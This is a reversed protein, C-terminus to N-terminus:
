GLIRAAAWYILWFFGQIGLMMGFMSYIMGGNLLRFPSAPQAFPQAQYKEMLEKAAKIGSQLQKKSAPRTTFVEQLMTGFTRWAFFTVILALLIWDPSISPLHMLGITVLGVLAMLNTGCRPHARPMKEVYEIELPLGRELAHVTQHEAAHIGAMPIARLALLFLLSHLVFAGSNLLGSGDLTMGIQQSLAAAGWSPDLMWLILTLVVTAAAYCGALTLGSLFLGIPPAGGSLTGNSLWVGLPTAMGGVLPPRVNQGMAALIDARSVVGRYLGNADLVPLANLDYRDFTSLANQLSFVSPIHPVDTRMVDRATLQQWTKTSLEANKAEAEDDDGTLDLTGYNGPIGNPAGNSAGNSAGNPAGHGDAHGNTHFGNLPAFGNGLTSVPAKAIAESTARALDRADILGIVRAQRESPDGEGFTLRDLVPLVGHPASRLNEAVLGLSDTLRATPVPRALQGARSFPM